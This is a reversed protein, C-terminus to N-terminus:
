INILLVYDIKLSKLESGELSSQEMLQNSQYVLKENLIDICINDCIRNYFIM